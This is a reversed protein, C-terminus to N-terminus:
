FGLSSAKQNEEDTKQRAVTSLNPPESSSRNVDSKSARHSKAPFEQSIEALIKAQLDQIPDVEPDPLPNLLALPEFDSDDRVSKRSRTQNHQHGGNQLAAQQM